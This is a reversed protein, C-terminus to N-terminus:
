CILVCLVRGTEVVKGRVEDASTTRYKKTFFAMWVCLKHEESDTLVCKPGPKRTTMQGELAALFRRKLTMRNVKPHNLLVANYHELYDKQWSTDNLPVLLRTKRLLAM